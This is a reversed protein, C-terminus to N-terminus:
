SRYIVLSQSPEFVECISSAPVLCLVLYKEKAVLTAVCTEAAAAAATLSSSSSRVKTDLMTAVLKSERKSALRLNDLTQQHFDRNGWSFDFRAVNMGACLMESLVAVDQSSPGLSCVVKAGSAAYHSVKPPMELVADQLNKSALRSLNM